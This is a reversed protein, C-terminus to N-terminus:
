AHATNIEKMTKESFVVKMEGNELRMVMRIETLWKIGVLEKKEAISMVGKELEDFFKTTTTKLLNQTEQSYFREPLRLYTPVDRIANWEAAWKILPEDKPSFKSKVSHKSYQETIFRELLAESEKIKSELTSKPKTQKNQM